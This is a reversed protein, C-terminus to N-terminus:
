AVRWFGLSSRRRQFTRIIPWVLISQVLDHRKAFPMKPLDDRLKDIMIVPFSVM